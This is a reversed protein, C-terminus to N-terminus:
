HSLSGTLHCVAGSKDGPKSFLGFDSEPADVLDTLVVQQPLFVPKMFRVSFEFGDSLQQQFHSLCLNNSFMGHAIHRKFGFLRASLPFLHIPNYDGSVKAYRRGINNDFNWHALIEGPTLPQSTQRANDTAHRILNTGVSEYAVTQGVSIATIIDFTTGKDHPRTDGFSCDITLSEVPQVPRYQVIRNSIHVLGMVPHSFADDLLLRLHLPFALCHLLGPHIYPQKWGHLQNFATVQAPQVVREALRVSQQQIVIDRGSARKAGAKLLLSLMSPQSTLEIM